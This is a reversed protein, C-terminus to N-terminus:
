LYIRRKDQSCPDNFPATRCTSVELTWRGGIAGGNLYTTGDSVWAYTAEGDARRGTSTAALGGGLRWAELQAYVRGDGRKTDRLSAKLVAANAGPFSVEGYGGGGSMVIPNSRTAWTWANAGGVGVFM